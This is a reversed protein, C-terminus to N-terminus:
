TGGTTKFTYTTNNITLEIYLTTATTTHTIIGNQLTTYNDTEPPTDYLTNFNNIYDTTLITTTDPNITEIDSTATTTIRVPIDHLGKCWQNIIYIQWNTSTKHTHVQVISPTQQSTFTFRTNNNKKLLINNQRIVAEKDSVEVKDYYFLPNVEVFTDHDILYFLDNSIMDEYKITLNVHTTHHLNNLDNDNLTGFYM